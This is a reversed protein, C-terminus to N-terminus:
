IYTLFANRTTWMADDGILFPLKQTVEPYVANQDKGLAEMNDILAKFPSRSSAAEDRTSLVSWIFIYERKWVEKTISRVKDDPFINPSAM